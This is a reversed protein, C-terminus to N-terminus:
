AEGVAEPLRMWDPVAAEVSVEGAML